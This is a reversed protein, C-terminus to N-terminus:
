GDAAERQQIAELLDTIAVITATSTEAMEAHGDVILESQRAILIGLL